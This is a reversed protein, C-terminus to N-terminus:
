PAITNPDLKVGGSLATSTADPALVVRIDGSAVKWGSGSEDFAALLRPDATLSVRRTEGPALAVRSFAILRRVPPTGHASIEAYLQPTDIGARLGTNTVDFDASVTRGGKLSLNRYKFETYSLGFGFPFLPKLHRADFWRYGVNAGETYRAAFATEPGGPYAPRPLDWGPIQPRPLQATDAPFTVPLRGGPSIRGFLVRAIAQGGRQGPYWAEVVSAVHPLWPMLVPGGTELVVITKPNARAVAEILQDQGDPLALTSADAEEAMWQTAFVIAVDSNQALASAAAIDDGSAFRVDAKPTEAKIADLPSSPDFLIGHIFSATGKPVPLSLAAGGVPLVQSSGGGSLVGVDAHGGIVAIRATAEDLPLLRDRNQLLVIGAEAVQQAVQADAQVDIARPSPSRDFLGRAFMTRLIRHVMDHLRDSDFSAQGVVQEVSQKYLMKDIEEGSQQDLGAEVAAKADRIAGWDSMVWGPYRWDGKLTQQLLNRNACAYDSNIRNYSCMVSGPNGREIALEFALLDSERLAALDIQVDIVRRGTEQDNIAFHKVTSIIGQDQVGRIAEGALSGALLPDEGLYEFNRGCRPDRALNVGGALLVNFGKAAAEGAIMAGGRYAVEPDWSAAAALGSPLATAEVHDSVAAVGLSADTERLAPIGLRPIGPVYGSGIIDAARNKMLIPMSGHVLRIREEPTMVRELLDARVDPSQAKDMWPQDATADTAYASSAATFSASALVLILLGPRLSLRRGKIPRTQTIGHLGARGDPDITGPRAFSPQSGNTL